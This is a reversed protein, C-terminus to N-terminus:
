RLFRPFFCCPPTVKLGVTIAAVLGIIVASFVSLLGVVFLLIYKNAIIQLTLENFAEKQDKNTATIFDRTSPSFRSLPKKTMERELDTEESAVLSFPQNGVVISTSAQESEM